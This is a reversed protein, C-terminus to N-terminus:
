KDAVRLRLTTDRAGSVVYLFDVHGEKTPPSISEPEEKLLELGYTLVKQQNGLMEHVYAARSLAQGVFTRLEPTHAYFETTVEHAQGQRHLRGLLQEWGTATSPPQAVLQHCFIRQLGDRGTGHAKISALISRDGREKALELPAHLGGGHKTLGTREALWEGFDNLDYWVVGRHERAWRATEEVLFDHVRVAETEPKVLDKVDRWPPWYPTKWSPRDKREPLDGAARMAALQCLYPSDMHEVQSFLRSRVAKNWEKRKELWDLIVHVPEGRPFTWRYFLGCALERACRAVSLADMLEEGDPRQWTARLERLHDSIIQPVDVIKRQRIVMPVDASAESTTVFGPTAALRRKVGARVHEGPECLQLLEGPPRPDSGAKGPSVATSWERLVERDLPLPSGARLAAALLHACDELQQGTVSGSWGAFHTGPFKELYRCFRMTTSTTPNKLKHCEDAIILQPRMNMLWASADPRSLRSYPFVHLDPAGHVQARYDQAAHSILSPVRWHNRLLEYEAILQTVLGPPCLLVATQVTPLVLPALIDLLTKGHGVGIAGVLGGKLGLEYLAWAQSLHLELICDRGRAKCDCRTSERGYRERALYILAEAHPTQPFYPERYPLAIVRHLDASPSVPPLNSAFLDLPASSQWPMPVVGPKAVLRALNKPTRTTPLM